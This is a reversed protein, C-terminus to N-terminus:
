KWVIVCMSNAEKAIPLQAFLVFQIMLVPIALINQM